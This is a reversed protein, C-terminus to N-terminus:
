LQLFGAKNEPIHDFSILLPVIHGTHKGKLTFGVKKADYIIQHYPVLDSGFTALVQQSFNGSKSKIAKVTSKINDLKKTSFLFLWNEKGEPPKLQYKHQQIWKKEQNNWTPSPLLFKTNQGMLASANTSDPNPFLFQVEKVEENKGILYLYGFRDINAEFYYSTLDEQPYTLNYAVLQNLTDTANIFKAKQFPVENESSFEGFHLNIQASLEVENDKYQPALYAQFCYKAVKPFDEYKIWFLGDDGWWKGWSNVAHFAGGDKGFKKDDYGIICIAHGGGFSKSNGPKWLRFDENESLKFGLFLKLRAWLSSMFKMDILSQDTLIGIVLPSGESLAKKALENVNKTQDTLGFVKIYDFIKSDTTPKQMLSDMCTHYPLLDYKVVGTTKIFEMAKIIETGESCAKDTNKKISNYLYSPSFRIKDIEKKDKIGQRKAELITRMYYASAVGVCTGFAEQDLITPLYEAMDYIAPLGETNTSFGSNKSSIKQYDSETSDNIILGQCGVKTIIFIAISISLITKRM